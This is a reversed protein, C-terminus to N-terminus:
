CGKKLSLQVAQENSWLETLYFLLTNVLKYKKTVRRWKEMAVTAEREKRQPTRRARLLFSGRAEQAKACAFTASRGGSLL